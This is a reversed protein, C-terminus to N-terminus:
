GHGTLVAPVPEDRKPIPQPCPEGRRLLRSLYAGYGSKHLPEALAALEDDGILGARWAAEEVCGVKVGQSQEVFQVFDWARALSGFTGADMWVTSPNLVSVTLQGRRLYEANVSTIELEGRGSYELGEAIPVVQSDYFYLGPVAYRSKPAAPKEEICRVRGSTDFDVVGYDQPSDVATALIHAGAPLRPLPREPAAMGADHFINDGLILAVPEGGIFDSGLLLAEAIGRPHSQQVYSISLGFQHGDGLLRQFQTRDEPTTVILVEDVGCYILTTLPYYIMPKDFVPILQKCTAQTIPWLRSGTGGALLIGRM